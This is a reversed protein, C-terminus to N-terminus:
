DLGFPDYGAGEDTTEGSTTPAGHGHNLLPQGFPDYGAGENEWIGSMGTSNGDNTDDAAFGFFDFLSALWGFVSRPGIEQAAAAPVAGSLALALVLLLTIGGRRISKHLM